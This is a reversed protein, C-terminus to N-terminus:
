STPSCGHRHMWLATNVFCDADCHVSSLPHCEGPYIHLKAEKGMAQLTHYLYRGQSPPVRRDDEGLLVLVAAQIKHSHLIPSHQLLKSVDEPKPPTTPDFPVGCEVYTWDPIDSTVRMGAIDVVPNRVAAARYFDPYQEVLHLSLFGGHSGGLVCVKGGDVGGGRVVEEAARQVDAVDSHGVRGLLYEVGDQGFGTSGRYNVLLVATGMAVLCLPWVMFDAVIVGHPGGHPFVALAPPTSSPRPKVLIAEYPVTDPDPRFSLVEWSVGETVMSIPSPSIETWTIDRSMDPSVVGVM